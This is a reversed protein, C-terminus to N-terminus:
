GGRSLAAAKEDDPEFSCSSKPACAVLMAPIARPATPAHPPTSEASVIASRPPLWTCHAQAVSVRSSTSSDPAAHGSAGSTPSVTESASPVTAGCPLALALRKEYPALAVSCAAASASVGTARADTGAVTLSHLLSSRSSPEGEDVVDTKGSIYRHCTVRSESLAAAILWTSSSRKAALGFSGIVRRATVCRTPVAKVNWSCTVVCVPSLLWTTSVATTSSASAGETLMLPGDLTRLDSAMVSSGDTVTHSLVSLAPRVHCHVTLAALPALEPLASLPVASLCRESNTGAPSSGLLVVTLKWTTADSPTCCPVLESPTATDAVGSTAAITPPARTERPVVSAM